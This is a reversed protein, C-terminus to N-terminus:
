WTELHLGPIDRFDQGNLTILSFGHALATAAIMRDIIKRRSFGAAGLIGRYAAACAADFDVVGLTKVLADVAMRRRAALDPRAHIGGELEILTVVSLAPVRDLGAIREDVASDADRLLIAVSTDLLWAV